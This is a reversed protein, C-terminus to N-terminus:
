VKPDGMTATSPTEHTKVGRGGFLRKFFSAVAALGIIIFKKAALLGVWLLKFGGVKALIGGAVLGALGIEAIKDTKPNFDAYRHGQNFNVMALLTPTAQEIEQLQDMGAIASLILVGRRGLIRVDYNLTHEPYDGIKLEKAWYLKKAAKDYRPPAAWGVLEMAPYGAQQRKANNALTAEQMKKLLDGYNISDADNDKVYGENENTILVGWDINPVGDQAPLLMGLVGEAASPPNHWLDVLLQRSDNADLYCFAAPVNLTAIGGPLTIAGQRPHFGRVIEQMKQARAEAAADPSAAADPTQLQAPSATVPLLLAAALLALLRPLLHVPRFLPRPTM